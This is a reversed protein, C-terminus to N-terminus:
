NQQYYDVAKMFDAKAFDPWLIDTFYIRAMAIDWLLLGNIHKRGGSVIVLDPPLFYSSYLNDKIIDKNISEADLKDAVIKRGILKCADVIEEQGDYNIAFNIFFDDYDKTAEIVDKIPEVIRYPLDYWKGLVSIKIKKNHIVESEKLWEFFKILLESFTDFEDSNRMEESLLFYTTIPIDLRAQTKIINEIVFFGQKYSEDAKKEHKKAWRTYGNIVIAIHRPMHTKGTGTEKKKLFKDFM